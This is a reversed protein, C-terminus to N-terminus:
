AIDLSKLMFNALDPGRATGNACPRKTTVIISIVSCLHTVAHHCFM